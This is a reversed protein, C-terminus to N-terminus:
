KLIREKLILLMVLSVICVILIIRFIWLTLCLNEGSVLSICDGSDWTEYKLSVSTNIIAFGSFPIALISIALLIYYLLKKM